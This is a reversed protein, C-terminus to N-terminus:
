PPPISSDSHGDTQRDTQGDTRRDANQGSCQETMKFCITKFSVICILKSTMMQVQAGTVKTTIAHGILWNSCKDVNQYKFKCMCTCILLRPTNTLRQSVIRTGMPGLQLFLRNKYYPTLPPFLKLDLHFRVESQPIKSFFVMSELKSGVFMIYIFTCVRDLGCPRLSNRSSTINRVRIWLPDPPGSGGGARSNIIKM